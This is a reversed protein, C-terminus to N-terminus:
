KCIFKGKKNVKGECRDGHKDCKKKNTFKKCKKEKPAKTPKPTKKAPKTFCTLLKNDWKCGQDKLANCARKRKNISDYTQMVDLCIDDESSDSSERKSCEEYAVTECKEVEEFCWM